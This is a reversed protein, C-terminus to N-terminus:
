KIETMGHFTVKLTFPKSLRINELIVMLGKLNVVEPNSTTRLQEKCSM